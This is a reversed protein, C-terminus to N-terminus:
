KSGEFCAFTEASCDTLKGCRAVACKGFVRLKGDQELLFSHDWLCYIPALQSAEMIEEWHEPSAQNAHPEVNYDVLGIGDYVSLEPINDSKDRALVVRRAMNISGASMGITLGNRERLVSALGYKRIYDMQKLTDGGSLWVVDASAAEQRAQSPSLQLDVVSCSSFSVGKEEFLRLIVRCYKEAKEHDSFDSAVFVFKERRTCHFHIQEVFEQSIGGDFASTLFNVSM